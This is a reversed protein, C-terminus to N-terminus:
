IVQSLYKAHQNVKVIDPDPKLTKPLLELDCSVFLLVAAASIVPRPM